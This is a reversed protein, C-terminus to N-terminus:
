NFHCSIQTSASPVNMLQVERGELGAQPNTIRGAVCHCICSVSLYSIRRNFIRVVEVCFRQIVALVPARSPATQQPVASCDPLDRTRNSNTENSNKMSIIRGAASHGQPQGLRKCFNTNPMNGPPYLRDTHLASLKIVFRPVEFEQLGCPM